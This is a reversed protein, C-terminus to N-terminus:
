VMFTTQEDRTGKQSDRLDKFNHGSLISFGRNELDSTHTALNM